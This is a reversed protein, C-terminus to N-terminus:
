LPPAFLAAEKIKFGVYALAREITQWEVVRDGFKEVLMHLIAEVIEDEEVITPKKRRKAM